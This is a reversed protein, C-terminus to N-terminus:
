ELNVKIDFQRVKAKGSVRTLVADYYRYRNATANTIIITTDATSGSWTVASGINAWVDGFISGKLQVTVKPASISDLKLRVSQTCPHQKDVYVQINYPTQGTAITDKAFFNTTSMYTKDFDLRLSKEQSFATLSIFAFLFFIFKKKM